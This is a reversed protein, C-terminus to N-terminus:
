TYGVIMEVLANDFFLEFLRLSTGIDDLKSLKSINGCEEVNIDCSEWKLDLM